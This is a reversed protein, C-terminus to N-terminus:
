QLGIRKLIAIFKPNSRFSDWRPDVKLLNLLIDHEEVAKDLWQLAEDQDGLGNYALAINFSPVYSQISRAKLEELVDQAKAEDGSLGAAYGISGVTESNGHSLEKAKNFEALAEPYRHQQAYVKGLMLNILLKSSGVIDIFLVHALHLDDSPETM